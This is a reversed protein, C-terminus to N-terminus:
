EGFCSVPLVLQVPEDVIVSISCIFCCSFYIKFPQNNLTFLPRQHMLAPWRAENHPWSGRKVDDIVKTIRCIGRHSMFFQIRLDNTDGGCTIVIIFWFRESSNLPRATVIWRIKSATEHDHAPKVCKHYLKSQCLATNSSKQGTVVPWRRLPHKSEDWLTFPLCATTCSFM